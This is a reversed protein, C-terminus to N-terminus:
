FPLWPAHPWGIPLSLGRSSAPFLATCIESLMAERLARDDEFLRIKILEHANLCRDIEALVSPTLGKSSIRVLPDIHHARASLARREAATLAKM